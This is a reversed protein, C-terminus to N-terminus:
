GDVYSVDSYVQRWRPGHGITWVVTTCHRSRGCSPHHGTGWRHLLLLRFSLQACPAIGILLNGCLAVRLLVRWALWDGHRGAGEAMRRTCRLRGTVSWACGSWQETHWSSGSYREESLPIHSWDGSGTWENERWLVTPVVRMTLEYVIISSKCHPTQLM